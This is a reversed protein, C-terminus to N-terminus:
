MASDLKVSSCFLITMARIGALLRKSQVLATITSLRCLLFEAKDQNHIASENTFTCNPFSLLRQEAPTLLVGGLYKPDM